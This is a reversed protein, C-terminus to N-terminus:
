QAALKYNGNKQRDIFIFTRRLDPYEWIEEAPSDPALVRQVDGPPGYLIYIKGRDTLAGNPTSLTQYAYYAEDVRRFYEVLLENIATGPTPDKKRWWDLIRQMFEEEPGSELDETEEETLIHRMVLLAFQPDQISLPMDKWYVRIASSVTDVRDEDTARASLHYMGPDLTDTPLAFVFLSADTAATELLPFSAALGASDIVAAGKLVAVPQTAYEWIVAGPSGPTAARSMTFTWKAEPSAVGAVAVRSQRAFPVSRGFAAVSPTQADQDSWALPIISSIVPGEQGFKKVTLHQRLVRERTSTGDGVTIVLTYVGPDCRFSRHMLAFEDRSNTALYSRAEVTARDHATAVTVRTANLLEYSVELRGAFLSDGAREPVRQFVIFDHTVRVFADIRCQGAPAPFQHLEVAVLDGYAPAAPAAPAPSFRQAHARGETALILAAALCWVRLHTITSAHNM